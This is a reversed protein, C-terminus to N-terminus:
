DSIRNFITTNFLIDNVEDITEDDELIDIFAELIEKLADQVPVNIMQGQNLLDRMKLFHALAKEPEDSECYIGIATIHIALHDEATSATEAADLIDTEDMTFVADPYGTESLFTLTESEPYMHSLFDNLLVGTPFEQGPYDHDILYLQPNAPNPDDLAILFLYNGGDASGVEIFPRDPINNIDADDLFAQNYSPFCVGSAHLPSYESTFCLIEQDWKCDLFQQIAPPIILGMIQEGTEPPNEAVEIGLRKLDLIIEPLLGTNDARAQESM